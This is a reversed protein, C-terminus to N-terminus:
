MKPFPQMENVEKFFALPLNLHLLLFRSSLIHLLILLFEPTKKYFTLCFVRQISKM